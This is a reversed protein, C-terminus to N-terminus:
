LLAPGGISLLSFSSWFHPSASSYPRLQAVRPTAILPFLPFALFHILRPLRSHVPSLSPRAPEDPVSRSDWGFDKLYDLFLFFSSPPFFSSFCDRLDFCWPGRASVPFLPWEFVRAPSSLSETLLLQFHPAASVATAV